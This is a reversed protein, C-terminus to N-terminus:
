GRCDEVIRALEPWAPLILRGGGPAEIAIRGRSFAMEDLLADSAPVAAALGAQSATAALIRDGFSTRVILANGTGGQHVLRIQRNPECRIAFLDAYSASPGAEERYSWDGPSLPSDEWAVPQPQLPAPAPTPTPAPAPAPTPAPAPSRPVCACLTILALAPGAALFKRLTM